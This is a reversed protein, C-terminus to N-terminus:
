IGPIDLVLGVLIWGFKGLFSRNSPPNGTKYLGNSGWSVRAGNRRM